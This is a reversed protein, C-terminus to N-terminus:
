ILQEQNAKKDNIDESIFELLFYRMIEAPGFTLSVSRYNEPNEEKCLTQGKGTMLSGGKIAM